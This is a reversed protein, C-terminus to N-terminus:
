QCWRSFIGVARGTSVQYWKGTSTEPPRHVLIKVKYQPNAVQIYPREGVYEPNAQIRSKVAKFEPLHCRTLM